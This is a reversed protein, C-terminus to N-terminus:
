CKWAITPRSIDVGDGGSWGNDRDKEKGCQRNKDLEEGKKKKRVRKRLPVENDEANELGQASKRDDRTHM